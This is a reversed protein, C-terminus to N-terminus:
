SLPIGGNEECGYIGIYFEGLNKKVKDEVDTLNKGFVTYNLWDFDETVTNWFQVDVNYSKLEKRKADRNIKDLKNMKKLLKVKEMNEALSMEKEKEKKGM